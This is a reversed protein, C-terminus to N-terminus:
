KRWCPDLLTGVEDWPVVVTDSRDQRQDGGYVLARRCDPVGPTACFRDLGRFFDRSVTEGSKIEVALCAPGGQILLDVELGQRDRFFYHHPRQGRNLERKRLEGLVWNEFIAWRLPHAALQVPTRIGLLHCLLGTDTFYLKPTKVLRKKVNGFWPPLRWTIYGAELVSLWSQATKYNIGADSGLNSLNLLQGCRGACLKLFTQFTLLNGVNVVQRVDREVYTTVYSGLWDDPDPLRDFIAPYGGQVLLHFLELSVNPFRNIEDLDLPLLELIGTRGALSQSVAEIVSFNRSGTLIFRGPTPDEDVMGQLYSTLEPARQVEDIIAGREISRLFGLPDELAFSRYNPSELTVYPRDPFTMRCLTTKGSQRPGTVTVVPFSGALRELSTQASRRIM